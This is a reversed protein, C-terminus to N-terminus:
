VRQALSNTGHKRDWRIKEKDKQTRSVNRNIIKKEGKHISKYEKKLTNEKRAM